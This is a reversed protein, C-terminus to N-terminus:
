DISMAWDGTGTGHVDRENSGVIGIATLSECLDAATSSDAGKNEPQGNALVDTRLFVRPMFERGGHM